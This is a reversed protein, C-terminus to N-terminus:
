CTFSFMFRVFLAGFWFWVGILNVLSVCGFRKKKSGGGVIAGKSDGQNELGLLGPGASRRQKPPRHPKSPVQRSSHEVRAKRHCM